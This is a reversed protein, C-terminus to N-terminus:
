VASVSLTGGNAVTVRYRTGDPSRLILGSGSDDVEIDGGDVELKSAPGTTGIGLNGSDTLTVHIVGSNNKFHISDGSTASTLSNVICANGVFSTTTRILGVVDLPVGPSTTGIGLKSNNNLYSNGSASLRVGETTGDHDFMSLRAGNGTSGIHFEFREEGNPARFRVFRQADTSLVDLVGNPSTTGIGVHGASTIRMRETGSTTTNNSATFFKIETSANEISSGGGIFLSNTTEFNNTFLITTPEEAIDYHEGRIRNTKNTDATKNDSIRLRGVIDLIDEPSTTGIGINGNASKIYLLEDDNVNTFRFGADSNDAVAFRLNDLNSATYNNETRISFNSDGFYINKQSSFSTGVKINGNVELPQDPATTGIGMFGNSDITVADFLVGADTAVQFRMDAGSPNSNSDVTRISAGNITTSNDDVNKFYLIGSGSSAAEDRPFISVDGDGKLTMITNVGGSSTNYGSFKMTSLFEPSSGGTVLIGFNGGPSYSVTPRFFLRSGTTGTICMEGAGTSEVELDRDPSTTGIGLRKNTNDWYFNDDGGVSNTTTFFAAQGTAGSGAIFTQDLKEWRDTGGQEIYVCWDGVDWSNPLEGPGNPTANGAVSVVYYNGVVKYIANTLDPSGGPTSSADWNGKFVLGAPIGAVQTDVYGKSAADTNIGPTAPITVQSTFNGTGTAIFNGTVTLATAGVDQTLISDGLVGNPGDSWLTLTNTTGTGTGTNTIYTAIDSLKVSKTPNNNTNDIDTIVLLDDASLSSLPLNPYTYIIAM